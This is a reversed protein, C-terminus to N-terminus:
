GGVLRRVVAVLVGLALLAAVITSRDVGRMVGGAESRPVTSLPSTVAAAM